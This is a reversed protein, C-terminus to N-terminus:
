KDLVLILKSLPESSPIDPLHLFLCSSALGPVQAPPKHEAPSLKGAQKRERRSEKEKIQKRELIELCSERERHEAQSLCNEL